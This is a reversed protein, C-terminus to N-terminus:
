GRVDACIAYVELLASPGTNAFAVAWGSSAPEWGNNLPWSGEIRLQATGFRAFYGGGIVMKGEPCATYRTGTGAAGFSQMVREYGSIGDAGPDGPDGKAGQRNWDLATENKRCAEGGEVDVLRLSGKDTACAHIVDGPDPVAAYAVGATVTLALALAPLLARRRRIIRM